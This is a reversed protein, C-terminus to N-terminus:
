QPTKRGIPQALRGNAELYGLRDAASPREHRSEVGPKIRIGQLEGISWPRLVGIDVHREVLLVGIGTRAPRALPPVSYTIDADTRRGVAGQGNESLIRQCQVAHESVIRHATRISERWDAPRPRGAANAIGFVAPEARSQLIADVDAHEASGAQPLEAAVPLVIGRVPGVLSLDAGVDGM